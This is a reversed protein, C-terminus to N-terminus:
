EPSSSHHSASARVPTWTSRLVLHYVTAVILISAAATTAVGARRLYTPFRGTRKPMVHATMVFACFGNTLITFYGFYSIIGPLVGEGRSLPGELSLAFQLALTLWALVVLTRPM